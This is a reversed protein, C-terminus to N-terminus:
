RTRIRQSRMRASLKFRARMDASEFPTDAAELSATSEQKPSQRALKLSWAPPCEFKLTQLTLTRATPNVLRVIGVCVEHSVFLDIAPIHLDIPGKRYPNM